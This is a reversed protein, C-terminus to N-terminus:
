LPIILANLIRNKWTKVYRANVESSDTISISLEIFFDHWLIFRSCIQNKKSQERLWIKQFGSDYYWEYFYNEVAGVSQPKSLTDYSINESGPEISNNKESHLVENM